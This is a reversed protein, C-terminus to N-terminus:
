RRYFTPVPKDGSTGWAQTRTSSTNTSPRIYWTGNSDRWVAIDCKGDADYDNHVAIDSSSQWSTTDTTSSGSNRIIWNSSSSQRVAYDAKGDGDYDAPVPETSPILQNSADRFEFYAPNGNSSNSSYFVSSSTRWVALDAKGDGDFDAPSPVDGSAGFPLYVSTGSSSQNIYWYNTSPRFVAIDTKGDGDYDAQAPVDDTTGFPVSYTSGDSSKAIWWVNTTPRFIAFDTKGDGDYDGEVPEDGSTGWNDGYYNSYSGNASGSLVWWGGTSPRWIALDAPPAANANADEVALLRGGAAHIYEKSLQPTPTPLPAAFPNWGSSARGPLDKGFWGTKRGTLNDTSPFWDKKAFIGVAILLVFILVGFGAFLKRRKEAGPPQLSM